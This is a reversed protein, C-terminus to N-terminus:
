FACAIAMATYARSPHHTKKTKLWVISTFRKKVNKQKEGL